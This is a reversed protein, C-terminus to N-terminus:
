SSPDAALRFSSFVGDVGRLDAILKGLQSPDSLEVEYRLVAIRDDGTHTSSATINGGTDSIVATVDRLLRTRDLAEIQIWVVFADTSTAPWSVDVTRERRESLSSVNTCDARHVSVGRGVTVYGVIADGPVPSCCRALNVLMDDQGEVVVHAGGVSRRRRPHFFDDNTEPEILRGLRAAVSDISVVGDGIAVQLTELDRQGLEAAIAELLKEREAPAVDPAERKFLVQLSEKGEALAQDRRERTFWQRIKAKARGTRVFGLWDRSPGAERSKSTLVEIIDGSQLRTSLPVLRGNVRAGVCHHGVETHVSYAFDVATSGAPLPKVDGGPTLVFVEDQYLDLKLNALFEEPDEDEGWNTFDMRPLQGAEGEKYRWHAAIGAEARQHMEATRIQVELPKGDPGIVTTHLSQYLNIKPMAIYDKFRGAVPVWHSHILGLAAYCDRMTPTIIRIGILDHIDEFPRNQELMKRYISYQHKPRGTVEAEIGADTLIGSIEGVMKEIFAEREPAREALKTTIEANPGPYLIAFCRDEFEHKIEQVGLRHALPAYVDLTERAVRQQKEDRLAHVTRLNHLRDFLKIILVRVDQAMAVVMKRITAAQAQERNSYRVRDLKTVGDILRAIEDGFEGSIEALTLNTDEVTDHLLAAALTPEDLGYEALMLAVTVPHTIYPDGTKRVQGEHAKRAWEHARRLLEVDGEPHHALFAAVLDEFGAQRQETTPSSPM